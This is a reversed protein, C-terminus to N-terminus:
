SATELGAIRRLVDRESREAEEVLHLVHDDVHQRIASDVLQRLVGAPLADVEVSGGQWGASRSDTRKTPRTPLRYTEIQEPTVALREFVVSSSALACAPGMLDRAFSTVKEVTSRWADVGSPDHDGLQYVFTERGRRANEVIEEALLRTFTESPYGRVIGLPVQWADTVGHVVGTIADKESIISVRTASDTWLSRRYSAAAATLMDELRDWATPRWTIRTGDVIYRWPVRGARRLVLLRRGVLEYGLETKEVVGASVVRYFVGRVTVPHEVEVAAVIASDM